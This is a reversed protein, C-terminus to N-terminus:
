LVHPLDKTQLDVGKLNKLVTLTGMNDLVNDFTEAFILSLKDEFLDM